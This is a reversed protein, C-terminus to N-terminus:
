APERGSGFFREFLVRLRVVLGSYAEARWAPTARPDEAPRRLTQRDPWEIYDGPWFQNAGEYYLVMDPEMPLVEQEVVAAISDSSIGERAANIIEYRIDSGRAQSWLNLWVGIFEPYSPTGHGGVTTSSGVFALRITREPKNLALETGRWGFANTVLGNPYSARRLFRYSPLTSQGDPPEYVFLHEYAGYRQNFTARDRCALRELGRLNWEYIPPLVRGNSAFQEEIVPERGAAAPPEPTASFWARDVGNAVPLQRMHTMARETDSPPAEVRERELRQSFVAYGDLRRVGVEAAVTCAATM